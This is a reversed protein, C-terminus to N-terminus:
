KPRRANRGIYKGPNEQLDDLMQRLTVMARVTQEYQTPDNIIRGLASSDQQIASVTQELQRMAAQAQALTVSLRAAQPQRAGVMGALGEAGHQVTTMTGQAKAVMGPANAAAAAFRASLANLNESATRAGALMRAMSGHALSDRMAVAALRISDTMRRANVSNQLVGGGTASFSHARQDMAVRMQDSVIQAHEVVKVINKAKEPTFSTSVTDIAAEIQSAAATIQTLDTMTGGPMLGKSRPQTFQIEPHWSKSVVEVQWGGMLAAPEIVIGADPPFVLGPKVMMSVFVGDSAPSLRVDSVSGIPVGRYIVDDGHGIQGANAVVARIEVLPNGWPQRAAWFAAVVLVLAIGM